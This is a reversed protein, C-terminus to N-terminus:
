LWPAKGELDPFVFPVFPFLSVLSGHGKLEEEEEEQPEEDRDRQARGSPIVLM